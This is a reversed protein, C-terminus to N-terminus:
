FNQYIKEAYGETCMDMKHKMEQEMDKIKYEDYGLAKMAMIMYGIASANNM